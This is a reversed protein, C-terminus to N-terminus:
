NLSVRLAAATALPALTLSLLFAAALIYIHGLSSLGVAAAQVGSAGFILIPIYLPIVLLTLLLGSRQIGVTLGAGIAGVLSLAPTGLVLSLMLTGYASEPLALLLALMPSIVILPLGTVLWHAIIKSLVLVSAPHPSLLMQELTGDDYDSKFLHDLALLTALLAAVWLVGPAIKSLTSTEPGVGFPFLSVVMVFFLIPNALASRNRYALKLDRKLQRVFAASASIRVGQHSDQSM